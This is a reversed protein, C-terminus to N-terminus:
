DSSAKSDGESRYSSASLPLMFHTTNAGYQQHVPAAIQLAAIPDRLIDALAGDETVMRGFMCVEM